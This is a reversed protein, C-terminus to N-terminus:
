VGRCVGRIRGGMRKRVRREGLLTIGFFVVIGEGEILVQSLLLVLDNSEGLELGGTGGIFTSVWADPLVRDREGLVFIGERIEDALHKKGIGEIKKKRENL